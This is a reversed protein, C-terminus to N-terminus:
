ASLSPQAVGRGVSPPRGTWRKFAHNFSTSGEYGLLWAIQSLSFGPERLYQLALSRRLHDVLEGFTAGEEALRRSLTRVSLGLTKAVSEINAKGHPLLREAEQEVAARLTGTPTSREGAARDCFPRLAEILKSDATLLPIALTETSFELVDSSAAGIAAGGFTVPCLYFREFEGADSARVHAFVIRSPSIRRGSAERLTKLMVALGFEVNQRIRHRALGTVEVEVALGEETRRLRLRAAENVIRVYRSFLVLAEGVDKAGSVIYFLIGSDRPDTDEALRLGFAADNTAEAALELFRAQAGAPVRRGPGGDLDGESLGARKLLSAVPVGRERLAAIARRAAFGTVSPLPGSFVTESV